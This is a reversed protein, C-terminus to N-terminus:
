AITLRSSGFVRISAVINGTAGGGLGTTANINIQQMATSAESGARSINLTMTNGNLGGGASASLPVPKQQKRNVKIIKGVM